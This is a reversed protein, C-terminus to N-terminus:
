EYFREPCDKWIAAVEKKLLAAIFRRIRKSHARSYIVQSVASQTVGLTRSIKTQTWGRKRLEYCIELGDM